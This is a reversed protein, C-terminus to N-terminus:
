QPTFSAVLCYLTICSIGFPDCSNAPPQAFRYWRSLLLFYHMGSPHWGVVAPQCGEPIRTTGNLQIFVERLGVTNSAFEMQGSIIYIGATICTLRSTNVSTSHITDTDYRETDFTLATASSTTISQAASNYVRAGISTGSPNFM